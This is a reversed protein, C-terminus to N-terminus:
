RVKKVRKSPRVIDKRSDEFSKIEKYSEEWRRQLELLEHCYDLCEAHYAAALDKILSKRRIIGIMRSPNFELVAPSPDSQLQPSEPRPTPLPASEPPPLQTQPPHPVPAPSQPPPAAQVEESM